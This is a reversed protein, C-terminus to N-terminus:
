ERQETALTSLMGHLTRNFQECTDNGEPHYPTTRSKDIRYYECLSQVLQGKFNQGHDSHFREPIGFRNFIEVVIIKILTTARENKTLFALAFKSFVDTVILVNEKGDWAPDVLTFDMALVQWPKSAEATGLRNKARVGEEKGMVCSKCQSWMGRSMKMCDQGFYSIGLYAFLGLWEKIGAINLYEM